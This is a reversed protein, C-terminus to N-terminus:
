HCDIKVCAVVFTPVCNKEATGYTTKYNVIRKRPGNSSDNSNSNSYNADKVIPWDCDSFNLVCIRVCMLKYIPTHIQVYVFASACGNCTNIMFWLVEFICIHFTSLNINIIKPWNPFPLFLFIRLYVNHSCFLDTKTEVKLLSHAKLWYERSVTSKENFSYCKNTHMHEHVFIPSIVPLPLDNKKMKVSTKQHWM